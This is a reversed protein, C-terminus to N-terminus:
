DWDLTANGSTSKEVWDKVLARFTIEEKGLSITYTYHEGRKWELVKDQTNDTTSDNWCNKLEISYRTGYTGDPGDKLTIYMMIKDGASKLEGPTHPTPTTDPLKYHAPIKVDGVKIYGDLAQNHADVEAQTYNVAPKAPTKIKLADPLAAFQDATLSPLAIYDTYNYYSAPTDVVKDNEKMETATGAAIEDAHAENYAAAEEATASHSVEAQKLMAARHDDTDLTAFQDATFQQHHMDDNFEAVDTYSVADVAPEKVMDTTWWGPLAANHDVIETEDDATYYTAEVPTLDSTLYYTKDGTGISTNDSSYIATLNNTSYFEPADNRKNGDKDNELSQPIVIQNALIYKGDSLVVAGSLTIPNETAAPATLVGIEGDKVSITGGNYLNIIEIKADALNVKQDDTAGAPDTLIVSIKSMAHEFTLPVNGTRPDIAAGAAYKKKQGNELIYDDETESSKAFHESTQAWLLDTGQAASTRGNVSALTTGGNTTTALARFYYPTNGNVWYLVTSPNWKGATPTGYTYTSAKTVGDTTVGNEDYSDDNSNNLSRWLDFSGETVPTTADTVESVKVDPDFMISGTISASVDTWDTIKAEVEIRQKKLTAKLRYNIGSLTIGGNEDSFTGYADFVTNDESDSTYSHLQTSWQRKGAQTDSADLTKLLDNTLVLDYKNGDVEVSALKKGSKMVTPAIIAEYVRTGKTTAEDDTLYMQIGTDEVSVVKAKLTQAKANVDVAEKNAYLVPTTSNTGFAKASGDDNKEFGEDLVLEITVKSMAHTYTVPLKVKDAVNPRVRKPDYQVAEQPGAWLLDSKRVNAFNETAQNDQVKWDVEDNSSSISSEVPSGGNYCFGYGVRLWRDSKTIDDSTNSFDDWYLAIGLNDATVTPGEQGVTFTVLKSVKAADNTEGSFENDADSSLKVVQEVYAILEDNVEFAGNLARTQPGVYSDQLTVAMELPTKEGTESITYEDSDNELSLGDSCAYLPLGVIALAGIYKINKFM